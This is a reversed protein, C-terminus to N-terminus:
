TFSSQVKKSGNSQLLLHTNWQKLTTVMSQDSTVFVLRKLFPQRNCISEFAQKSRKWEASPKRVSSLFTKSSNKLRANAGCMCLISAFKSLHRQSHEQKVSALHVKLFIQFQQRMVVVMTTSCSSSESARIASIISRRM